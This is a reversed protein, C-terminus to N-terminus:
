LLVPLIWDTFIPTKWIVEAFEVLTESLPIYSVSDILLFIVATAFTTNLIFYYFMVIIVPRVSYGYIASITRLTIYDTGTLLYDALNQLILSIALVVIIIMIRKHIRNIYQDTFITLGLGILLLMYPITPLIAIAVPTM